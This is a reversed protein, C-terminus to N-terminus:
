DLNFMQSPSMALDECADSGYLIFLIAGAAATVIGEDKNDIGGKWLHDTEERVTHHNYAVGPGFYVYIRQVLTLM